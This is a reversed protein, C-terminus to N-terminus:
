YLVAHCICALVTFKHVIEDKSKHTMERGNNMAFYTGNGDLTIIDINRENGGFFLCMDCSRLDEDMM